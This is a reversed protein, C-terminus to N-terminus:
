LKKNQELDVSHQKQLRVVNGSIVVYTVLLGFPGFIITPLIWAIPKGNQLNILKAMYFLYGLSCIVIVGIIIGLWFNHPTGFQHKDAYIYISVFMFMLLIFHFKMRAFCSRIKDVQDPTYQM